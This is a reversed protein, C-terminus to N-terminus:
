KHYLIPFNVNCAGIFPRLTYDFAKSFKLSMKIIKQLAAPDFSTTSSPPPKVMQLSTRPIKSNQPM